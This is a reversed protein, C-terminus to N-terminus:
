RRSVGRRARALAGRADRRALVRREGDRRRGPRDDAGPRTETRRGRRPAPRSVQLDAPTLRQARDRHDLGVRGAPPDPARDHRGDRRREQSVRPRLRPSPGRRRRSSERDRRSRARLASSRHPHATGQHAKRSRVLLDRAWAMAAGYDTGAATPEIAAKRLDAPRALPHVTRDFTGVELQTGQRGSGPDGASRGASSRDAPHGRQTGHQGLPRAAGRGAPRGRGARDRAHVAPRVPLRDPGPVGDAAGAPALAELTQRRANDRLVVKLFQLTGLDVPRARQRFMLHIIIPIALAGLAGLMGIQIFQM